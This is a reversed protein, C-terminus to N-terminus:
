TASSSSAQPEKRICGWAPIRPSSRSITPITPSTRAMARPSFGPGIIYTGYACSGKQPAFRTTLLVELGPEAPCQVVLLWPDSVAKRGTVNVSLSDYHPDLYAFSKLTLRAPGNSVYVSVSIQGPSFGADPFASKQLSHAYLGMILALAFFIWLYGM